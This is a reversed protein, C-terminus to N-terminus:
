PPGSRERARRQQDEKQELVWRYQSDNEDIHFEELLRGDEDWYMRWIVTGFQCYREAALGGDEYWQRELGHCVGGDLPTELLLRGSSSYERCLGDRYGIVFDQEGRLSGDPWYEVATGTFLEGEYFFGDDYELLDWDVRIM